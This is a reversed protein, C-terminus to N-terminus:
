KRFSWFTQSEDTLQQPQEVDIKIISEFKPNKIDLFIEATPLGYSNTNYVRDDRIEVLIKSITIWSVFSKSLIFKNTLYSPISYLFYHM